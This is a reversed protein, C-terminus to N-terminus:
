DATRSVERMGYLAKESQRSLMTFGGVVYHGIALGKLHSEDENM